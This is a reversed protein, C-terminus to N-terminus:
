TDLNASYAQIDVGVVLDLLGRMAAYDAAAVLSKGNASPAVSSWTDLNASHAQVDKGVELDLLDRIAAYDAAAALAQADASPAISSWTDLNASYAQIDVGIVLGGLATDLSGQLSDLTDAITVFNEQWALGAEGYPAPDRISLGKYTITERTM